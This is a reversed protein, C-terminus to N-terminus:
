RDGIPRFEELLPRNSEAHELLALAAEIVELQLKADKPAGLPYGHRFPVLLARPPGVREAAVRLLQLTVTAVGERELAAAILSM